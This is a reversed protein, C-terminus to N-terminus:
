RSGTQRDTQRHAEYTRDIRGDGNASGAGHKLRREGGPCGGTSWPLSPSIRESHVLKCLLVQYLVFCQAQPLQTHTHTHICTHVMGSYLLVSTCIVTLLLMSWNCTFPSCARGWEGRIKEVKKEHLTTFLVLSRQLMCTTNTTHRKFSNCYTSYHCQVITEIPPQSITNNVDVM